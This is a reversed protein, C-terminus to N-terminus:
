QAQNVVVFRNGVSFTESRAIGSSNAAIAYSLTGSGTGSTAGPFSVWGVHVPDSGGATYSMNQTVAGWTCGSQTTVTVSLTKATNSTAVTPTDLTYTCQAPLTPHKVAFLYKRGVDDFNQMFLTFAGDGSQQNQRDDYAVVDIRQRMYAIRYRQQLPSAPVLVIENVFALPAGYNCNGNAVGSGAVCNLAFAAFATGGFWSNYQYAYGSTAGGLVVGTNPYVTPRADNVLATFDWFKPCTFCRQYGGSTNEGIFGAPGIDGHGVGYVTRWSSNTFNYIGFGLNFQAESAGNGDLPFGAPGRLTQLVYDGTKDMTLKYGSETSNRLDYTATSSGYPMTFTEYTSWVASDIGNVFKKIVSYNTAPTSTVISPIDAVVYAPVENNGPNAPSDFVFGCALRFAAGGRFAFSCRTIAVPSLNNPNTSSGSAFLANFDAIPVALFCDEGACGATVQATINVKYVIKKASSPNNAGIVIYAPDPSWFVASSTSGLNQGDALRPQIFVGSGTRTFTVPDFPYIVIDTGGPSIKGAFALVKTNDANFGVQGTTAVEDVEHPSAGPSIATTDSIRIIETGFLPDCYKGGPAPLAPMTPPALAATSIRNALQQSTPTCTGSSGGGSTVVQRYPFRAQALLVAALLLTM